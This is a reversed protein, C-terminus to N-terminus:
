IARSDLGARNLAGKVERVFIKRTLGIGAKDIFFPGPGVKRVIMFRLITNVPCLWKGTWGITVTADRRLRDTKSEKIRVNLVRPQEYSDVSVDDWTLHVKPDFAVREPVLAEGARLCGYFCMCAAAWLLTGRDGSSSWADHLAAMHRGSVPEREPGTTCHMARRCAISKRLQALKAMTGWEPVQIGAKIHAQRLGALHYNVTAAQLGEAALTTRVGRSKGRDCATHGLGVNQVVGRIEGM